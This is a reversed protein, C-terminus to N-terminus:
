QPEDATFKSIFSYNNEDFKYHFVRHYDKSFQEDSQPSIINSIVNFGDASFCLMVNSVDAGEKNLEAFVRSVHTKDFETKVGKMGQITKRCRNYPDSTKIDTTQFFIHDFYIHKFYTDLFVSFDIGESSLHLYDSKSKEDTNIKGHRVIYLNIDM